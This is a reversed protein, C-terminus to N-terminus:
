RNSQGYILKINFTSGFLAIAFFGKLRGNDLGCDMGGFLGM